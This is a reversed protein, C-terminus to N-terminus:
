RAALFALVRQWADQCAAAHGTAHAEFFGHPAGPYTVLEHEVGAATLAQDFESVAEAPIGQDAGGFLGLIPADLESAHQTPGPGYPGAIGPAGYFGIVGAFGFRPASALFANRGGMCFGLAVAPRGLHDAAAMIDDQIADRNLKTVHEMIQFDADRSDDTATRGYYDIAIAPHGQEALRVALQKYFGHLGRVDPLIVVGPGRQDGPRAEYAAFATGDASTLRVAGASTSTIPTSHAPPTADDDYCM